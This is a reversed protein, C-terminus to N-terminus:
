VGDFHNEGLELGMQALSRGAGEFVQLASNGRAESLEFGMVALAEKTV